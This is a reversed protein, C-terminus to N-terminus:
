VATEMRVVLTLKKGMRILIAVQSEQYCATTHAQLILLTVVALKTPEVTLEKPSHRNM